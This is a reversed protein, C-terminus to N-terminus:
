PLCLKNQADTSSSLDELKLENMADLFHSSMLIKRQDM